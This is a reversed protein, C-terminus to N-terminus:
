GENGGERGEKHANREGREWTGSGERWVMDTNALFIFHHHAGVGDVFHESAGVAVAVAAMAVTLGNGSKWPGGAATRVAGLQLLSLRHAASVATPGAAARLRRRSRRREWSLIDLPFSRRPGARRPDQGLRGGLHAAM